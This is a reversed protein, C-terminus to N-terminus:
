PTSERGPAYSHLYLPAVGLILYNLLVWVGAFAELRKARATSPVSLFRWALHAGWPFLVTFCAAVPVLFGIARAALVGFIATM